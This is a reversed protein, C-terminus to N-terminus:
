VDRFSEGTSGSTREWAGSSSGEVSDAASGSGEGTQHQQRRRWEDEALSQRKVYELVIDEEERDKRRQEELQRSEHESAAIARRFEAEDDDTQGQAGAETAAAHSDPHTTANANSTNNRYPLTTTAAPSHGGPPPEPHWDDNNGPGKSSIPQHFTPGSETSAFDDDSDDPWFSSASPTTATNNGGAAYQYSPPETTPLDLSQSRAQDSITTQLPPLTQIPPLPSSSNNGLATTASSGQSPRLHDAPGTRHQDHDRGMGSGANEQLSRRLAEEMERKHMADDASGEVGVEQTQQRQREASEQEEHAALSAALARRLEDDETADPRFRQEVEGSALSARIAREVLEDEEPNGTSTEAVSQRIAEALADEDWEDEGLTEGGPGTRPSSPPMTSSHAPPKNSPVQSRSSLSAQSENTWPASTLPSRPTNAQYHSAPSRSSEGNMEGRDVTSAPMTSRRSFLNALRQHHDHAKAKRKQNVCNLVERERETFNRKKQAHSSVFRYTGVIYARQDATSNNYDEWGQAIRAAIIYNQVSSGSHKRAEMYIGKMTYAPLAFAAAQPKMAIGVMGKGIGKVFGGVGDEKAGKYPETVIGTFGEYLGQGFERGAVKLGSSFGTVKEVKRPEDGYLRPINHFGKSLGMMVEMPVKMGAEAIKGVSRGTQVASDVTFQNESTRTRPDSASSGVSPSDGRETQAHFASHDVLAQLGHRVSKKKKEQGTSKSSTYVSSRDDNEDTISIQPTEISAISSDSVRSSASLSRRHNPGHEALMERHSKRPDSTASTSPARSHSRSKSGHHSAASKMSSLPMDAVGMMVSAVTSTVAGAIGTVPDWPGSEPDFENPRYLKLDAFTIVGENALVVAALASLRVQTKRLRWVAVRNPLISCRLSEVDLHQHFRSAGVDCGRERSIKAALEEARERSSPKLAEQISEALKDATLHKYPTPMPGAGAKAVMAGWFPQDGFFPVVVTPKGCAIGAATTGAGGHHVVCSVHKFLWDHPVNGLMFVGEPIGLEDAGLGGWGKSVLARVGLKKIAEFIMATMANPDDVVISGFGIYVPPPGAELFAALDPAPIYNSALSLFFFGAVSIHHGWDKPKPILAPSWCYTYPVRLRALLGMASFTSLYELNLTRTRFKNIIDGLGQWTLIDVLGYSMYNAVGTEANSRQINALPHPFAQTPSWPMTFMMHLPIGLKEACHVHAFSPPNAIIADAVFPKGSASSVGTDNGGSNVWAETADVADVGFGDGVEICSRWCGEIIEAIGKRRKGVDGNKLTEMGPMLGPNKVMFAMLEAPDGGISFFELGNEEVFGKFVPHTALRVRHNYVDKLVKGLAVFPQVDGRSGVVHIVVNMPPPPNRGREGALTPPIYPPPSPENAALVAQNRLAPILLNSLRRNRQDIRINVRGDDAVTAQTGWDEQENSVTGLTESYPPPPEEGRPAAAANSSDRPLGRRSDPTASRDGKAHVLVRHVEEPDPTAANPAHNPRHEPEAAAMAEQAQTYPNPMPLHEHSAGSPPPSGSAM